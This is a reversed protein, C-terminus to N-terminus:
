LAAFALVAAYGLAEAYGYWDEPTFGWGGEIELMEENTLTEM